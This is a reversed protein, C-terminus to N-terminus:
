ASKDYAPWGYRREDHDINVCFPTTNEQSQISIRQFKDKTNTFHEIRSRLSRAFIIRLRMSVCKLEM